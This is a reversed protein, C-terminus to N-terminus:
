SWGQGEADIEKSFSMNEILLKVNAVRPAALGGARLVALARALTAEADAPGMYKHDAVTLAVSVFYVLM